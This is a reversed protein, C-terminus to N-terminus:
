LFSLLDCVKEGTDIKSFADLVKCEILNPPPVPPFFASSPCFVVNSWIRQKRSRPFGPYSPVSSCFFMRSLLLIKTLRKFLSFIECFINFETFLKEGM